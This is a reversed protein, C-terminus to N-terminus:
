TSSSPVWTGVPIGIGRWPGGTAVADLTPIPSESLATAIWVQSTFIVKITIGSTRLTKSQAGPPVPFTDAHGVGFELLQDNFDDPEWAVGTIPNTSMSETFNAYTGDLTTIDAFQHIITNGALNRGQMFMFGDADQQGPGFTRLRARFEVAQITAIFAGAVKPTVLKFGVKPEFNEVKYIDIRMLDTDDEGALFLNFNLAPIVDVISGGVGDFNSGSFDVGAETRTDPINDGLASLDLYVEAM